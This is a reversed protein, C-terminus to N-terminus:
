PPARLGANQTARRLSPRRGNGRRRWGWFSNSWYSLVGYGAGGLVAGYLAWDRTLYARLMWVMATLMCGMSALVGAWPEGFLVQGFALIVGQAPPYVSAYSPQQLVFLTEFHRWM